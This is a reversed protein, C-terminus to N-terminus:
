EVPSMLHTARALALGAVVTIAGLVLVIWAAHSSATSLTLAVGIAVVGRLLGAVTVWAPKPTTLLVRRSAGGRNGGIRDPPLPLLTIRPCLEGGPDTKAHLPRKGPTVTESPVSPRPGGAGSGHPPVTSPARAGQCMKIM